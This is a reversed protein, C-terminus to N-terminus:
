VSYITPLTLHTYSVAWDSFAAVVKEKPIHAGMLDTVVVAMWWQGMKMLKARRNKQSEGPYEEELTAMMKAYNMDRSRRWTGTRIAQHQLWSRRCAQRFLKRNKGDDEDSFWPTRAWRNEILQPGPMTPAQNKKPDDPGSFTQWTLEGLDPNSAKVM